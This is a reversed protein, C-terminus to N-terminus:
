CGTWQYNGTCHVTLKAADPPLAVTGCGVGHGSEGGWASRLCAAPQRSDVARHAGPPGTCLQANKLGRPRRPPTFDQDPYKHRGGDGCYIAIPRTARRCPHRKLTRSVVPNSGQGALVQWSRRCTSGNSNLADSPLIGRHACHRMVRHARTECVPAAALAILRCFIGPSILRVNPRSRHIFSSFLMSPRMAKTPAPAMPEYIPPLIACDPRSTTKTSGHFSCTSAIM